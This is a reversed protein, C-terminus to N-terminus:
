FQIFVIFMIGTVLLLFYTFTKIDDFNRGEKLILKRFDESVIALLTSLIILGLASKVGIGIPLGEKKEALMFPIIDALFLANWAVIYFIGVHKKMPFSGQNQFKVVQDDIAYNIKSEKGIRSIFGTERISALIESPNKQSLFIVESAYNEVKHAIKIGKGEMFSAEYPTISIIDQPRFILNGIISANIKLVDEDVILKVFPSTARAKGIVAGGTATYSNKMTNDYNLM